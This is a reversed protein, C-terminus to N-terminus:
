EEDGDNNAAVWKQVYDCSILRASGCAACTLNYMPRFVKSNNANSLRYVRMHDVGEPLTSDATRTVVDMVWGEDKKCQPCETSEFHADMYRVFDHDTILFRAHEYGPLPEDLSSDHDTM